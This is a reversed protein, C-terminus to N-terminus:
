GKEVDKKIFEINGIVEEISGNSGYPSSVFLYSHSKGFVMFHDLRTKGNQFRWKLVECNGIKLKKINKTIQFSPHEVAYQKIEEELEDKSIKPLVFLSSLYITYSFSYSLPHYNKEKEKSRGLSSPDKTKINDISQIEPPNESLVVERPSEVYHSPVIHQEQPDPTKRKHFRIIENSRSFYGHNENYTNKIVEIQYKFFIKIENNTYIEMKNINYISDNKKKEQSLISYSITLLVTIFLTSKM